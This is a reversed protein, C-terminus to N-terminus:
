HPRRSHIFGADRDGIVAEERHVGAAALADVAADGLEETFPPARDVVHSAIATAGARIGPEAHDADPATLDRIGRACARARAGDAEGDGQEAVEHPM